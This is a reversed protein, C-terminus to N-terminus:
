IYVFERDVAGASTININVVKENKVFVGDSKAVKKSFSRGQLWGALEALWGLRGAWGALWSLWGALGALWDLWGAWGLEAWGTM